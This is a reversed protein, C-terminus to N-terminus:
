KQRMALLCGERQKRSLEVLDTDADPLAILFSFLSDAEEFQTEIKLLNAYNYLAKARYDNDSATIMGLASFTEKAEEYKLTQLYCYGLRYAARYNEKDIRSIKRYFETADLYRHNNFLTDAISTLKPISQAFSLSSIVTLVAVIFGRM